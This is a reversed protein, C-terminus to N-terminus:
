KKAEKLQPRNVGNPIFTTNRGYTEKFYKQVGSSLVIIEDAYKVAM